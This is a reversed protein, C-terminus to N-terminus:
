EEAQKEEDSLGDVKEVLAKDDLGQENWDVSM